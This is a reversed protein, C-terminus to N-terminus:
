LSPFYRSLGYPLRYFEESRADYKYSKFKEWWFWGRDKKVSAEWYLHTCDLLYALIAAVTAPSSFIVNVMVNFQLPLYSFSTLIHFNIFPIQKTWQMSTAYRSQIPTFQDSASSCRTSGSTSHSPCDWSCRSALYSSQEWPTSTATSFSPSAQVLQKLCFALESWCFVTHFFTLNWVIIPLLKFCDHIRVTLSVQMLGSSVICHLSFRCHFPHLFRGSNPQQNATRILWTCNSVM